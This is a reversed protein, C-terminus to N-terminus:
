AKDSLSVNMRLYLRSGLYLVDDSIKDYDIYDIPRM